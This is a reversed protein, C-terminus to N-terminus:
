SLIETKGVTGCLCAFAASLHLNLPVKAAVTVSPRYTCCRLASLQLRSSCPSCLYQSTALPDKAAPPEPLPVPGAGADGSPAPNLGTQGSSGKPAARSQCSKPTCLPEPHPSCRTAGLKMCQFCGEFLVNSLDMEKGVRQNTAQQQKNPCRRQEGSHM